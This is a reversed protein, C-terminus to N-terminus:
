GEAILIFDALGHVIVTRQSKEIVNPLVSFASPLSGDGNPFVDKNSCEAWSVNQPAHIAKKVDPRDFYLPSLQTQPFSGRLLILFKTSLWMLPVWPFGLVDWLIPYTDFIRYINFAPNVLVAANFILDWVDCSPDSNKPLPLPGQPPFTVHRNIYGAYNCQVALADIQQM